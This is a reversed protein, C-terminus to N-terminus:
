NQRRAFVRRRRGSGGCVLCHRWNRGGSDTVRPNGRCWWCRTFPFLQVTVWAALLGVAVGAAIGLAGSDRLLLWAAVGAAIGWWM